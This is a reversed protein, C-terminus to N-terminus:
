HETTINLDVVAPEDELAAAPEDELASPIDVAESVQVQSEQLSKADDLDMSITDMSAISDNLDDNLSDNIAKSFEDDQLNSITAQLRIHINRLRSELSLIDSKCKRIYKHSANLDKLIAVLEETHSM